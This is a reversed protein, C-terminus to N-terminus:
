AESNGPKEKNLDKLLPLFVVQKLPEVIIGKLVYADTHKLNKYSIKLDKKKFIDVKRGM